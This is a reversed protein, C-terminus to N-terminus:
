GARALVGAARLATRCDDHRVAAVDGARDFAARCGGCAKAEAWAALEDREDDGVPAGMYSRTAQAAADADHEEDIIRGLAQANEETHLVGDSWFDDVGGADEHEHAAAQTEPQTKDRAM